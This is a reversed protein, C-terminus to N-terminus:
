KPLWKHDTIEFSATLTPIEGDYCFFYALRKADVNIEALYLHGCQPTFDKFDYLYSNTHRNDVMNFVTLKGHENPELGHLKSEDKLRAFESIVADQRRTEKAAEASGTHCGDCVILAVFIFGLGIIRNTTM